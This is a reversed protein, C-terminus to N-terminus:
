RPGRWRYIQMAQKILYRQREVGLTTGTDWGVWHSLFPLMTEPALMPDLYAWLTDLIQVDPELTEEFIKLMRGVFDVERYTDPLFDLYLSTPRIYLRFTEIAFLELRPSFGSDSASSANGGYIQLQGQYNITLAQGNVIAEQNEFFDAPVQFYLVAEMEAYPPLENGEMGIQLWHNPFNGEVRLNTLLTRNSSNRLKVVIESPESPNVLLNCKSPSRGNDLSNSQSLHSQSRELNDASALTEENADPSKMSILQISLAQLKSKPTM